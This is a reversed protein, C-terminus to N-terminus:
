TWALDMVSGFPREASLASSDLTKRYISAQLPTQRASEAQEDDGRLRSGYGGAM